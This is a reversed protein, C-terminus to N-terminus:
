SNTRELYISGYERRGRGSYYYGELVGGDRLVLRATGIHMEMTSVAGPKPDNEYQYTLVTGEPAGVEISATLTHSDSTASSLLVMIRTWTQDIRVTVEHPKKHDDFSSLVHGKWEGALNPVKLLRTRRISMWRWLSEDFCKFLIGYFGMTSPADIWWPVAFHTAQLLESLALALVIALVALGLLVQEREKSDTSYPHM